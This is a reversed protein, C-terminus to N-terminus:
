VVGNRTLRKRKFADPSGLAKASLKLRNVEGTEVSGSFALEVAAVAVGGASILGHVIADAGSVPVRLKCSAKAVISKRMGISSILGLVIV